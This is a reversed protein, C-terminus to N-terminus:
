VKGAKRLLLTCYQAIAAQTKKADTYPAKAEKTKDKLNQLDHDDAMAQEADHINAESDVIRKRLGEEDLAEFEEPMGSPIKKRLKFLKGEIANATQADIEAQNQEATM